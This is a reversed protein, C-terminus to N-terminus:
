KANIDAERSASRPASHARSRLATVAAAVIWLALFGGGWRLAQQWVSRERESRALFRISLPRDTETQLVQVFAHRLGRTPLNARLPAVVAEAVAQAKQLQAVQQEAVRADYNFLSDAAPAQGATPTSYRELMGNNYMYNKQAEILQSSQARNVDIELRDLEAAAQRDRIPSRRLGKLKNASALNGTAVESRSRRLLDVAKASFTEQKVIEQRQYEALTFDQTVPVLEASEYSMTGRFDSYAFDPPLFVEWRADKLPLDLRPSELEVRGVTRPFDRRGVYTVEVLVPADATESGELPLLLANGQQAPRVPRGDVFASWVEAKPPLTLALSQRGNNRIFLDMQTMEQGDDAVVTRLRVNDVLAQLVSAGEFRRVEIPLVWGPRLYRFCLVPTGAAQGAAWAPLERPDIRLLADHAAGPALQLQSQTLLGIAGTEREVGVTELGALRLVNTAQRSMEWHVTLRYEGAVKNQLEVRWEGERRDRRRVGAGLIEVNRWDAPVRLRFEKVPANQIEYRVVSRGALLNEGVTVYHVVEARLWSALQETAVTVHWPPEAQREAALHKFALTGSTGTPLGWVTSAPVESAGELTATKIGVGPEAAVTIYGTLKEVDLPHIGDLALTPALNTHSHLIQLEVLVAGLTRQKLALELVRRGQDVHESWSQMADCQVAEVQGASPLRLRLGFVGVRSVTYEIRAALGLQDPGVTFHQRQIAELRPELLGARLELDFEPRLFRWASFVALAPEGAATGFEATDVRELGATRGLTLGVDDTARVAVLGTQRKVDLAEPLRVSVAAPLPDLPRETDIALRVTPSVPKVLDVVLVDRDAGTLDWSRLQEGSVRLLRQAAPLRIRVQQLEGQSIQWELKASTAVAGDGVTVLAVQHAFVTAAVDAARKRRPTWSLQVRHTAGLVSRVVTTEGRTEREWWAAGPFEIEAGPENLTLTLRSGVAAPAAFELQRKGADGGVPVLLKMRVSTPGANPLVLGLTEGERWLRADGSEVAFEQVAVDKGFLPVSQNTVSSILNLVADFQAARERAHGTYAADVIAVPPPAPVASRVESAAGLVLLAVAAPVAPTPGAAPKPGRPQPPRDLRRWALWALLIAGLAPASVILALGLVRWAILLDVLALLALLLGLALWLSRPPRRRWEIWVLGLGLLFGLLEAAARALAFAQGSVMRVSITPAEQNLSLVRTFTYPRGAKPLDFKLSKIGSATAAPAIPPPAIALIDNNVAPPQDPPPIAPPLNSLAARDPAQQPQPAAPATASQPVPVQQQSAAQLTAAKDRELAEAFRAGSLMQVSGDTFVVERGGGRREPSYALIAEPTNESKGAGVYNYRQGSEPDVLVKPSGLENMMAELRDPLRDGNDTAYLRAAIGIQKLNNVSSIRQAKSKAKSLAPLLMGALIALLVFVAMVSTVGKFGHRRGYLFLAAFFAVICGVVILAAGYEHWLGRYYQAFADWGDRWGYATGQAVTMNGGFGYVHRSAPAYFTWEVYTGPVDTKPAAFQFAQPRLGALTGIQQAYKIDIAFLQDRNDGRPLAALVWSGDRDARAPEGNVTVGWLAAGPPLEFRQYQRDNNKVLFSAQTLMEGSGTLVSTIQARDAVADLVAVETHRTVQFGLTFNTGEYRYARLVPRSILARDSAALETPDIPRLPESAAGPELALNAASTVAVAGTEREVELPHAGAADLTAGKPDFAYDYTIVLTYGGWAKDQLAVTWVGEQQDKRRINPGTFEVNRWHPPLRLRFEQVGQNVIGFRVTASGGVVGDGITVLNFVEAVVRASQREAALVVRWGGAEARFALLEERRGPLATVPIERAGEVVATKLQLGAVSGAGVFASERTAGALSLPGLTLEPPLQPLSQELQVTFRGEGLLRKVLNIRLKGGAPRWDEIGDGTVEAVQFGPPLSLDLAYVGARTVQLGLEHSVLWRTEELRARVRDNVAVVPEVRALHLRLAVPRASFRFAAFESAAANVQRLGDSGEIRVVMDEAQIRIAGTERQVGLPHPPRLEVTGPLDPLPQETVLTLTAATEVPRLFEIALVSGEAETAVRWDKVSDGTLKTIAQGAPLAVRVRGLRSQLVEYKLETTYRLAAPSVHVASQCDVTALSERAGEAGKSQWRLAVECDAGLVGRVHAKDAADGEAPTGSLLQVELNTDTAEVRVSGIAAPPGTFRVVNWPEERTVKAVVEFEIRNSGPTDAWLSVQRETRALRWGEPLKPDLVAVDGELVVGTLRNTSRSEAELAVAFRAGGGGVKGDYTASRFLLNTVAMGAPAAPVLRVPPSTGRSLIQIGNLVAVGGPGPAVEVSVPAGAEVPVDRCVVYQAGERWGSGAQWGAAGSASLPGFTNTGSSLTFVSSQERAGDAAAWGYLYVHYRGAELGTVTVVLNSGNPAYIYSDFMPDGTANGWVGPANTVSVAVTSNSGDALRLGEIRGDSVLPTGPQFRPRYHSYLNWFDNTSRATAAGGMKPSDAGSGFDVNLLTQGQLSQGWAVGLLFAAGCSVVVRRRGMLRTKM